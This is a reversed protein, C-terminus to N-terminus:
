CVLAGTGAFADAFSRYAHEMTSSSYVYAPTGLERGLASLDVGDAHLVGNKYQFGTM